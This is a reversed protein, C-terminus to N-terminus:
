PEEIAIGSTIKPRTTRCATSNTVASVKFFYRRGAVLNDFDLGVSSGSPVDAFIASDSVFPGKYRERTLPYPASRQVMVTCDEVDENTIGVSVGTFGSPPAQTKIAGLKLLYNVTPATIVQTLSAGRDLMYRGTAYAGMFLLRGTVTYSGAPGQFVINSAWDNWAQRAPDLLTNWVSSAAVFGNRIFGQNQTDPNVPATRQRIIIQHYQNATFTNGGISGRILSAHIGLMRAM